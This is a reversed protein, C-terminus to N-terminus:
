IARRDGKEQRLFEEAERAATAFAAVRRSSRKKLLISL